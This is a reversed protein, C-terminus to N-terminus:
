CSIKQAWHKTYLSYLNLEILSRAEKDFHLVCYSEVRDLTATGITLVAHIKIGSKDGESTTSEGVFSVSVQLVEKQSLHRLLLRAYSEHASRAQIVGFLDRAKV